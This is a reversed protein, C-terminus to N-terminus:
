RTTSLGAAPRLGVAAGGARGAAGWGVRWWSPRARLGAVALGAVALPQAAGLTAAVGGPLRAAALFLLPFFGGINLVGLVAAKWWWSGSPLTRTIALALLGAPLSRLLAAFLPHDPPLLETTVAYTTGWAAPALATPLIWILATSRPRGPRTPGVLAAAPLAATSTMSGPNPRPTGDTWCM